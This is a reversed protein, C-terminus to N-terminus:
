PFIETARILQDFREAVLDLGVVGTKQNCGAVVLEARFGLFEHIPHPRSNSLPYADSSEQM